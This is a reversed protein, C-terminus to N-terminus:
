GTRPRHGRRALFAQWTAWSASGPGGAYAGEARGGEGILVLAGRMDWALVAQGLRTIVADDVLDWPRSDTTYALFIEQPENTRRDVIVGIRDPRDEERGFGLSWSCQYSRCVDPRTPHIGCGVAALKPCPEGDKHLNPIDFRTCCATCAGCPRTVGLVRLKRRERRNM